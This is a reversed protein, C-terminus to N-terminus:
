TSFQLSFICLFFYVYFSYSIRTVQEFFAMMMMTISFAASPGQIINWKNFHKRPALGKRLLNVQSRHSRAAM